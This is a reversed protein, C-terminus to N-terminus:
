QHRTHQFKLSQQDNSPCTILIFAHVQSYPYIQPVKTPKQARCSRWLLKWLHDLRPFHLAWSPGQVVCFNCITPLGFAVHRLANTVHTHRSTMRWELFQIPTRGLACRLDLIVVMPQSITHSFRKIKAARIFKRKYLRGFVMSSTEAWSCVTATRRLVRVDVLTHKPNCIM